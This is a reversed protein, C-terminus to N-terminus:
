FIVRARKFVLNNSMCVIHLYFYRLDKRFILVQLVFCFKKFTMHTLYVLVQLCPLIDLLVSM